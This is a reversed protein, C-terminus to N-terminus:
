RAPRGGVWENNRIVVIRRTTPRQRVPPPYATKESAPPTSGIVVVRNGVRTPKMATGKRAIALLCSDTYPWDPRGDLPRQSPHLLEHGARTPRRWRPTRPSAACAPHIVWSFTACSQAVREARVAAVLEDPPGLRPWLRWRVPLTWPRPFEGGSPRGPGEGPTRSPRLIAESHGGPRWRRRRLGLRGQPSLLAPRPTQVAM